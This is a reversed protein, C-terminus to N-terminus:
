PRRKKQRPRGGRLSVVPGVGVPDHPAALRDLRAVEYEDLGGESKGEKFSAEQGHRQGHAHAVTRLPVAELANSLAYWTKPEPNDATRIVCFLEM